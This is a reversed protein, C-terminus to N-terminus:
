PLRELIRLLVGLVLTFGGVTLAFMAGVMWTLVRISVLVGGVDEAAATAAEEDVGAARLGQYTRTAQVRM